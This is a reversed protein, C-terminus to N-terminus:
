SKPPKPSKARPSKAPPTQAATQGPPNTLEDYPLPWKHTKLLEVEAEAGAAHLQGALFQRGVTSLGSRHSADAMLPTDTRVDWLRVTTDESASVIRKGDPAWALGSTLQGSLSPDGYIRDVTLTRSTSPAPAPTAGEEAAKTIPHNALVVVFLVRFLFSVVASRRM